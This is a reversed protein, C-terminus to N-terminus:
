KEYPISRLEMELRVGTKEKVCEKVDDALQLVEEATAGEKNVIFNAHLTSVEAGGLKKGKLGCEEILAGAPNGEPNRFVCGCSKDSYPQSKTRRDIIGLQKKRAAESPTLRFTAAAIVLPKEHFSSFRYSFALEERQLIHREGREDIATVEKLVDCVEAGGAGANM